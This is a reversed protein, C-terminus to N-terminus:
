RRVEEVEDAGVVAVTRGDQALSRAAAAVVALDSRADALTVVPRGGDAICAVWDEIIWRHSDYYNEPASLAVADGRTPGIRYAGGLAQEYAVRIELRARSGFVTAEAEDDLAAAGWSYLSQAVLGSAFHSDVLVTEAAQQDAGLSRSRRASVAVIEGGLQRLLSTHHTGQDLLIGGAPGAGTRWGDRLWIGDLTYARTTRLTRLEGVEGAEIAVAATRVARLHPYNEAVAAVVGSADAARVIRDADAVTAALPKEVLVHWGRTIASLAVETHADHPVRVDVADIAAGAAAAEALSGHADVGLANALAAGRRRQRDIVAVLRFGDGPHAYVERAVREGMAGCGVLAVGVAARGPHKAAASVSM